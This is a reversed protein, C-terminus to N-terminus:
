FRASTDFSDICFKLNVAYPMISEKVKYLSEIEELPYRTSEPLYFAFYPKEKSIKKEFLVVKYKILISKAVKKQLVCPWKEM